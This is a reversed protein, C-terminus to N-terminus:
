RKVVEFTLPSSASGKSNQCVVYYYVYTGSNYGAHSKDFVISYTMGKKSGSNHYVPSGYQRMREVKTLDSKQPKSSPKQAYAKWYVTANINSEADGGTKFRVRISLGDKDTTSLFSDFTPRTVKSTSVEYQSSSSSPMCESDTECGCSLIFITAILIHHLSKM